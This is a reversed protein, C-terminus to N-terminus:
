ADARQKTPGRHRPRTPHSRCDHKENATGGPKPFLDDLTPPERLNRYRHESQRFFGIDRLQSDNLNDLASAGRQGRNRLIRFFQKLVRM